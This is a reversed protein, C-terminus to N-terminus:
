EKRRRAFIGIGALMGPLLWWGEMVPVQISGGGGGAGGGSSAVTISFAPLSASLSGDSVSIQINSYTGTVATGTLAGSSPTFSAWSPKNAISYTLTDGDVDNGTSVFSYATGDTTSTQPNGSITPAHNTGNPGAVSANMFGTQLLYAVSSSTVSNSFQGLTGFLAYSASVSRGAGAPLVSSSIKYNTSTLAAGATTALLLSGMLLISALTPKM